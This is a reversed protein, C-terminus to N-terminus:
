NPANGQSVFDGVFGGNVWVTYRGASYVGLLVSATFLQFVNDCGVNPYLLSYVKVMIQYQQNPEPVDIRLANCTRPLSGLIRLVVRIPADGTHEALDMSTLDVGAVRLNSDGPKSAYPNDASRIVLPAAATPTSQPAPQAICASLLAVLIIYNLLRM